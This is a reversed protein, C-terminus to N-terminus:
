SGIGILFRVLIPVTIPDVANPRLRHYDPLASTFFAPRGEKPHEALAGLRDPVLRRGHGFDDRWQGVSASSSGSYGRGAVPRSTPVLSGPM